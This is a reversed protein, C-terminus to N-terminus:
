RITQEKALLKKKKESDLTLSIGRTGEVLPVLWAIKIGYSKQVKRKRGRKIEGRRDVICL